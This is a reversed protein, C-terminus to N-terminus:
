SDALVAVYLKSFIELMEGALSVGFLQILFAPTSKLGTASEQSIEENALQKGNGGTALNIEELNQLM